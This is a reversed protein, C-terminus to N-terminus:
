VRGIEKIDVSDSTVNDMYIYSDYTKAKFDFTNGLITDEDIDFKEPQTGVRYTAYDFSKIVAVRYTYGPRTKVRWTNSSIKKYKLEYPKEYVIVKNKM